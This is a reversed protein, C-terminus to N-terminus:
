SVAAVKVRELRSRLTTITARMTGKAADAGPRAVLDAKPRRPRNANARVSHKLRLLAARNSDLEALRSQLVRGTTGSGNSHRETRAPPVHRPLGLQARRANLASLQQEDDSGDEEDSDGGAPSCAPIGKRAMSASVQQAVMALEDDAEGGLPACLRPRAGSLRNAQVPSLEGHRGERKEATLQGRAAALQQRLDAQAKDAEASATLKRAKLQQRLAAQQAESEAAAALRRAESAALAARLETITRAAEDERREMGEKLAAVEERLQQTEGAAHVAGELQRLREALDAPARAPMRPPLLAAQAPAAVPTGARSNPPRDAHPRALRRKEPTPAVARASQPRSGAAPAASASYREARGHEHPQHAGAHARGDLEQATLMIAERLQATPSGCRGGTPTAARFARDLQARMETEARAEEQASARAQAEIVITLRQHDEALARHEAQVHKLTKSLADHRVRLEQTADQAAKCEARAAALEREQKVRLAAVSTADSADTGHLERLAQEANQAAACEARASALERELEEVPRM